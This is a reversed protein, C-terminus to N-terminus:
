LMQSEGLLCPLRFYLCPGDFKLGTGPQNKRCLGLMSWVLLKVYYFPIALSSLNDLRQNVLPIAYGGQSAVWLKYDGSMELSYLYTDEYSLNAWPQPLGVSDTIILVRSM